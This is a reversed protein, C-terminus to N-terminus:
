ENLFTVIAASATREAVKRSVEGAVYSWTRVSVVTGKDVMHFAPISEIPKATMVVEGRGKPYYGRRVVNYEVDLGLHKHAIPM